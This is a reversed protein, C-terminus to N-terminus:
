FKDHNLETIKKCYVCRFADMVRVILTVLEWPLISLANSHHACMIFYRMQQLLLLGCEDRDRFTIPCIEKKSEYCTECRYCHVEKDNKILSFRREVLIDKYTAEKACVACIYFCVSLVALVDVNCDKETVTLGLMNALYIHKEATLQTVHYDFFKLLLDSSRPICVFKHGKHWNEAQCERSCYYARKCKKCRFSAEKKCTLCYDVVKCRNIPASWKNLAMRVVDDQVATV